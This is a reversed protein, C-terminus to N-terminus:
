DLLDDDPEGEEEEYEGYAVEEELEVEVGVVETVDVLDNDLALRARARVAEWKAEWNAAWSRERAAQEAAYAHLGEALEPSVGTRADQQQDWWDAKWACYQLVRQYATSKHVESFM